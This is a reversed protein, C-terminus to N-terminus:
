KAYTISLILFIAVANYYVSENWLPETVQFQSDFEMTAVGNIHQEPHPHVYSVM